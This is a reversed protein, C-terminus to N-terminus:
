KDNNMNTEKTQKNTTQQKRTKTKNYRHKNNHQTTQTTKRANHKHTTQM